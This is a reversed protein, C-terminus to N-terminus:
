FINESKRSLWIDPLILGTLGSQDVLGTWYDFGFPWFAGTHLFITAVGM